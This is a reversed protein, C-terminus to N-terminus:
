IELLKIYYKIFGYSHFFLNGNNFLGTFHNTSEFQYYLAMLEVVAMAAARVGSTRFLTYETKVTENQTWGVSSM